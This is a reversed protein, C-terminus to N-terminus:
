CLNTIPQPYLETTFHLSISGTFSPMLSV